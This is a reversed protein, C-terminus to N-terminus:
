LDDEVEGDEVEGDVEGDVEDESDNDDSSEWEREIVDRVINKIGTKYKRIKSQSEELKTCLSDVAQKYTDLEETLAEISQMKDTIDLRAVRLQKELARIRYDARQNLERLHRKEKEADQRVRIPDSMEATIQCLWRKHKVSQIHQKLASKTEWIASSCPCRVGRAFHISKLQSLDGDKFNSPDDRDIYESYDILGTEQLATCTSLQASPAVTVNEINITSM